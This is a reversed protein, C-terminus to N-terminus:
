QLRRCESRMQKRSFVLGGLKQNDAYDFGFVLLAMALTVFWGVAKEMRSLRTRLQPTLDQLAM